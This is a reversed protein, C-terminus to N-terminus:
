FGRVKTPKVHIPLSYEAAASAATMGSTWHGTYKEMYAPNQNLPREDDAIRAEGAFVVVQDGLADSNCSLAVRPRVAINRVKAAAPQSYILVTEGDWVFWVPSPEPQGNARVTTLWIVQEDQLQRFARAGFETSPDLDQM